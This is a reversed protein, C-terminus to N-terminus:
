SQWDEPFEEEELLENYIKIIKKLTNEPLYKLIVNSILDKGSSIKTKLSKYAVMFEDYTIPSDLFKNYSYKIEVEAREVIPPTKIM